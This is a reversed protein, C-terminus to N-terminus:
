DRGDGAAEWVADFIELIEAALDRSVIELACGAHVLVHDGPVAEVLSIDVTLRNGHLSVTATRNEPHLEVVRMPVAICM